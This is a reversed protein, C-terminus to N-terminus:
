YLVVNWQRYITYNCEFRCFSYGLFRIYPIGNNLYEALATRQAASINLNIFSHPDPLDPEHKSKWFGIGKPIIIDKPYSKM